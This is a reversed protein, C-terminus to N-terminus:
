QQHHWRSHPDDSRDKAIFRSPGLAAARREREPWSLMVTSQATCARTEADNNIIGGRIHITQDIERSSGLAPDLSRPARGKPLRARSRTTRRWAQSLPPPSLWRAKEAQPARAFQPPRRKAEAKVWVSRLEACSLTWSSASRHSRALLPPRGSRPEHGAAPRTRFCDQAELAHLEAKPSVSVRDRPEGSPELRM